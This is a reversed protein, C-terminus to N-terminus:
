SRRTGAVDEGLGEDDFGGGEEVFGDLVLGVEAVDAALVDGLAGELDGGGTAVVDEHDARGAGALGHEGLAQGGDERRQAEFFGEFGGLDVGDGADEVAVFAEDGVAGEARGVVGDGVGAEDAAAHDRAGAFDGEGVVAQEEEVLEGLEGAVDEFDEALREFVAGDGDGAGGHRRVKGARKM